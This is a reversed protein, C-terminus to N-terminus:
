KLPHSKYNLFDPQFQIHATKLKIPNYRLIVKSKLLVYDHNANVQKLATPTFLIFTETKHKM